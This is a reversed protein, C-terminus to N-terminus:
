ENFRLGVEVASNLPNASINVRVLGPHMGHKAVLADLKTTMLLSKLACRVPFSYTKDETAEKLLPINMNGGRDIDVSVEPLGSSKLILSANEVQCDITKLFANLIALDSLISEVAQTTKEHAKESITHATAAATATIKSQATSASSKLKAFNMNHLLTSTSPRQSHAPHPPPAQPTTWAPPGLREGKKKRHQQKRKNESQNRKTEERQRATSDQNHLSRRSTAGLRVAAFHPFTSLQNGLWM